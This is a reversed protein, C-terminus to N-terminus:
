NGAELERSRKMSAVTGALGTPASMRWLSCGSWRM